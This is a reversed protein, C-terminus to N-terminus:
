EQAAPGRHDPAMRGGSDVAVADNPEQLAAPKDGMLARLERQFERVAQNLPGTVAQDIEMWRIPREPADDALMVTYQFRMGHRVLSQRISELLDTSAETLFIQKDVFVDDFAKATRTLEDLLAQEDTGNPRFGATLAKLARHFRLLSAHVESIAEFRRQTLAALLTNREANAATLQARLKEIEADGSRKLEAKHVELRRESDSKAQAKHAELEKETDRRLQAQLTALEKDAERKLDTKLKELKQAYHADAHGKAKATLWAVLGASVVTSVLTGSLVSTLLPHLTTWAQDVIPQLNPDPM